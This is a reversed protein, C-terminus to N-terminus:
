AGRDKTFGDLFDKRGLLREDLAKLREQIGAKATQSMHRPSNKPVTQTLLLSISESVQFTLKVLCAQKGSPHRGKKDQGDGTKGM